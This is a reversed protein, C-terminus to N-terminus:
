RMPRDKFVDILEDIGDVGLQAAMERIRDAPDGTPSDPGETEEYVRDAEDFDFARGCAECSTTFGYRYWPGEGGPDWGSAKYERAADVLCGEMGACFDCGEAEDGEDPDDTMDDLEDDSM